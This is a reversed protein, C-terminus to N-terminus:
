AVVEVTHRKVMDMFHSAPFAKGPDLSFDRKVKLRIKGWFERAERGGVGWEEALYREVDERVSQPPNDWILPSPHSISCLFRVAALDTQTMAVADMQYDQFADLSLPCVRKAIGAFVDSYVRIEKQAHPDSRLGILHLLNRMDCEWYMYTYTSLPLDIRATERAIGNKLAWAYFAMIGDRGRHLGGSFEAAVDDAVPGSRGQKNDTAHYCVDDRGPTYFLMPMPSYRGSYENRSSMRHRVFQRDSFIPLAMHVQINTMEFPSMHEHRFLYRILRRTEGIDRVEPGITYSCRAAREIALDGGMYDILAVFGHDLVPFYKGLIEEAEPIVIRGTDM